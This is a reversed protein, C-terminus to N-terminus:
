EVFIKINGNKVDSQYIKKELDNLINTKRKNLLIIKIRDKALEIPITEGTLLYEQFRVFYYYDKDRTELRKSVKLFAEANNIDNPLLDSLVSMYIWVNQFDDFKEASEKAIEIMREKAEENETNFYQKFKTIKNNNISFKFFLPKVIEESLKFSEPYNNYYSEIDSEKIVTDIEQKLYQQKYKEILLSARYDEVIDEIDKQEDSLNLKARKLITQKRVWLDIKNKIIIISDESSVEDPILDAIDELYLFKNHVQALKTKKEENKCSFVFLLILLLIIFRIQLM